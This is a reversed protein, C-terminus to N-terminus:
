DGRVKASITLQIEKPHQIAVKNLLVRAEENTINFFDAVQYSSLSNPAAQILHFCKECLPQPRSSTKPTQKPLPTNIYQYLVTLPKDPHKIINFTHGKRKLYSIMSQVKQPKPWNLLNALDKASIPKKYNLMTHLLKQNDKNKNTNKM